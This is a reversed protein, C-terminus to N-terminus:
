SPIQSPLSALIAQSIPDIRLYERKGHAENGEARESRECCEVAASVVILGRYIWIWLLNLRPPEEGALCMDRLDSRRHEGRPLCASLQTLSTQRYKPPFKFEPTCEDNM